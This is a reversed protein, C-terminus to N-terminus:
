KGEGPEIRQRVIISPRKGHHGNATVAFALVNLGVLTLWWVQATGLGLMTVVLGTTFGALLYPAVLRPARGLAMFIRYTFLAAFVAGVIGLEYWVEFLLSHPTRAPLYGYAIGRTATDLGHGTFMRAGDAALIDGWIKIPAAFDPLTNGGVLLKVALPLLPCLLILAGFLAALAFRTRGRRLRASGYALAGAGLALIGIPLRAAFVAIAVATALAGAAAPLRRLALVALAPWILLVLGVAARDLTTTGDPEIQISGPAGVLSVLVVACAAAAVGGPLMLADAGVSRSALVAAASIVLAATVVGKAIRVAAEAPFPTWIVSLSAWMVLCFGILATGTLLRRGAVEIGNTEISLSAAVLTLVAGIPLLSYIAQRSVAAAIPVAIFLVAFAVVFLLRAADAAPDNFRRPASLEM